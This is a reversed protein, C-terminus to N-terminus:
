QNKELRYGKKELEQKFRKSDEKYNAIINSRSIIGMDYLAKVEANNYDIIANILALKSEVSATQAQLVDIYIGVGSELRGFAIRLSEDSAKIQEKAAIIRQKASSINYYSDIVDLEILEKTHNLTLIKQDIEAEKSKLKTYENVGLGKGLPWTANLMIQHNYRPAGLRITGVAAVSGNISVKPLYGAYITKRENKLAEIQYKMAKLEPRNEVATKQMEEITMNEDILDNQVPEEEVPYVPINVDNGVYSALSVQAIKFSNYAEILLQRTKELEAQARVVDFKNGVGIAYTNKNLELQAERQMMSRELVEISFKKALLTNYRQVVTLLAKDSAADIDKINARFINKKSRTNFLRRGGEILTLDYNLFNNFPTENVRVPVIGGVLFEGNLRAINYKYTLDPLFESMANYYLWRNQDRIKTAIKIDYNDNMALDICDKMDVPIIGENFHKTVHETIDIKVKLMQPSLRKTPHNSESTDTDAHYVDQQAFGRGCFTFILLFVIIIIRKM